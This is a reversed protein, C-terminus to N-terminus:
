ARDSDDISKGDQDLREIVVAQRRLEVPTRVAERETHRRVHLEERLYLQKVVVLREEVVPIITVGDETRTDPVSDIARGIPVRTVEVVDHDLTVDAIAEYAETRTAVRVSGTVVRKKTVTLTEELVPIIETAEARMAEPGPLADTGTDVLDATRRLAGGARNAEDKETGPRHGM